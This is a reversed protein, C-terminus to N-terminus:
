LPCGFTNPIYIKSPSYTDYINSSRIAHLRVYIESGPLQIIHVRGSFNVKSHIYKAKM